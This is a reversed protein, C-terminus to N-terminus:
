PCEVIGTFLPLHDHSTIAFLFPRDLTFEIQELVEPISQTPAHIITYATATVGDEDIAVRAAHEVNSVYIGGTPGTLPSFDATDPHFVDTVGLAQLQANLDQKCSIDFKPLKLIVDAKRHPHEGGLVLDLPDGQALLDQPTTGEDPLILWMRSGDELGMAIAGYGDEKYYYHGSLTRCLYTATVDGSTAHFPAQTNKAINFKDQWQARYYVTSALAFVTAPDLSVDKTSDKLLGDTQQDLWHRLAEDMEQTGLDGCFVSAYYHRALTEVTEPVYGYSDDLWLSNSLLSSNLGDKRYHANWLYDTQTRLAEISDCGLLDLIQQRSNGDTTEALMALAMYMNLPSYTANKGDVDCLASTISRRLFTELGDAYGEPQDYQSYYDKWNSGDPLYPHLLREPYVPEAVLGALPVVAPESPQDPEPLIPETPEAPADQFPPIPGDPAPSDELPPPPATTPRDEFSPLHTTTPGDQLIPDTPGPTRHLATWGIVVALLAAVAGLWYPRRRRYRAAQAIHRDSIQDLAENMREDM